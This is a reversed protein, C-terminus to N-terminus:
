PERRCVRCRCQINMGFREEVWWRSVWESLIVRAGRGDLRYCLCVAELELDNVSRDGDGILFDKSECGEPFNWNELAGIAIDQGLANGNGDVTRRKGKYM